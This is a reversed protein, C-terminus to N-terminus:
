PALLMLYQYLIQTVAAAVGVAVPVCCFGIIIIAVEAFGRIFDKADKDLNM